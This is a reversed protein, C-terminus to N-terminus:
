QKAKGIENAIHTFVDVLEQRFAILTSIVAVAILGLILGYESLAQGEEIRWFKKATRKLWM